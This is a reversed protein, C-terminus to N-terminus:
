MSLIFDDQFIWTVLSEPASEGKSANEKAAQEKKESLETVYDAQLAIKQHLNMCWRDKGVQKWSGERVRYKKLVFQCIIKKVCNWLCSVLLGIHYIKTM